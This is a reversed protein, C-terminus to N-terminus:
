KRSRLPLLIEFCAGGLTESKKAEINGDHLSFIHKVIALGLGTGGTQRDRSRDVRYFREFIREWHEEPIGPGNDEVCIQIKNDLKKLSVHIKSGKPTYKVANGILNSIAQELLRHNGNFAVKQIDVSLEQENVHAKEKYGNVAYSICEGLFRKESLEATHVDSSEIKSLLLLDDIIDNMRRSQREITALFKKAMQPDNDIADVIPEIYGIMSTLPTKLEHSVNAVFDKRMNELAKLQSIDHIIVLIGIGDAQNYRVGSLRLFRNGQSGSVKLLIEKELYPVEHELLERIYQNLDRNRIISFLLKGRPDSAESIDLHYMASSNMTIVEYDSTIALCGERMNNFLLEWQRSEANARDVQNRTERLLFNLGAGLSMFHDNSKPSVYDEVIAAEVKNQLLTLRSEQYAAARYSIVILIIVLVIAIPVQYNMFFRKVYLSKNWHIRTVIRGEINDDEYVNVFATYIWIDSKQNHLVDVIPEEGDHMNLVKAHYDGYAPDFNNFSDGKFYFAQIQAGQFAEEWLVQYEGEVNDTYLSNKVLNAAALVQNSKLISLNDHVQQNIYLLVLNVPLWILLFLVLFIRWFSNRM